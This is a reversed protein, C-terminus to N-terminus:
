KNAFAAFLTRPSIAAAPDGRVHAESYIKKFEPVYKDFDPLHRFRMIVDSVALYSRNGVSDAEFLQRWMMEVLWLRNSRRMDVQEVPCGIREAMDWSAPLHELDLMPGYDAWSVNSNVVLSPEGVWYAPAHPMEGLVYCTTPICSRMTSFIRGSTDQCYSRIAHDRRYIHSYIATYFNETKAALSAVDGEEDPCPPQLVNYGDLFEDLDQVNDPTVESTYGYNLYVLEIHPKDVLLSLVREIAGSRTLDDDGLIWVYEGQARQATVALNGLMGVNIPNRFFRFDSRHLFLAPISSTEDTSANDVVLIELDDRAYSIQRAINALSTKLWKARNYTSICLSLKPRNRIWPLARRAQEYSIIPLASQWAQPHSNVLLQALKRAVIVPSDESSDISVLRDKASPFRLRTSLIATRVIDVLENSSCVLMDFSALFELGQINAVLAEVAAKDFLLIASNINKRGGKGAAARIEDISRAGDVILWQQRAKDGASDEPGEPLKKSLSGVKSTVDIAIAGLSSALTKEKRTLRGSPCHIFCDIFNTPDRLTELRELVQKAFFGWAATDDLNPELVVARVPARVARQYGSFFGELEMMAQPSTAIISDALMLSQMYQEECLCASKCFNKSTLERAGPFIFLNLLGLRRSELILDTEVIIEADSPSRVQGYVILTDGPNVSANDLVFSVDEATAYWDFDRGLLTKWPEDVIAERSALEIRKALPHWVVLRLLKGSARLSNAFRRLGEIEVFSSFGKVQVLLYVTGCAGRPLIIQKVQIASAQISAPEIQPVPPLRDLARQLFSNESPRRAIMAELEALRFEAANLKRRQAAADKSPRRVNIWRPWRRQQRALLRDLGILNVSYNRGEPSLHLGQVIAERSEGDELLGLHHALGVPDPERGLLTLYAGRVFDSGRLALLERVSTISRETANRAQRYAFAEESKSLDRALRKETKGSALLGLYHQLGRPDPGRGLFERYLRHVLELHDERVGASDDALKSNCEKLGRREFTRPEALWPGLASDIRAYTQGESFASLATIQAQCGMEILASLEHDDYCAVMGSFKPFSPSACVAVARETTMALEAINQLHDSWRLDNYIMILHSVAFKAIAEEGTEPLPEFTVTINDFSLIAEDLEEAGHDAASCPLMLVHIKAGPLEVAIRQLQVNLIEPVASFGVMWITTHLGIPSNVTQYPIIPMFPASVLFDAMQDTSDVSPDLLVVPGSFEKLEGSGLHGNDALIVADTTELSVMSGLSINEDLEVQSVLYKGTRRMADALRNARSYIGGVIPRRHAILLKYLGFKAPMVPGTRHKVDHLIAFDALVEAFRANFESKSWDRQMEEVQPRMNLMADRLPTLPYPPIYQHIHRFTDNSSTVLPQGSIIAQDTTASLGPQCRTYMFCNLDNESCWDILEEPSLFDYTFEVAVGPKAIKKCLKEIYEPYSEGHIVDTGIFDGSPINVRVVARDFEQNVAAVLNEFGKGPTGFGFSGIVPVDRAARAQIRPHGDLPRPFPYITGARTAGPDLAMYADFVGPPVLQLPDGPALELVVTFKPGSLGAIVKPDLDMAMTVFHWNFVWFDYQPSPPGADSELLLKVVGAEALAEVDIMDLSYYDIDFDDSGSLCNYVMKGSEHISCSAAATNIFVGKPKYPM